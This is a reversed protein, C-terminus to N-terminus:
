KDVIILFVFICGVIVMIKMNTGSHSRLQDRVSIHNPLMSVFAQFSLSVYRYSNKAFIGDFRTEFEDISQFINAQQEAFQFDQECFFNCHIVYRHSALLQENGYQCICELILAQNSYNVDNSISTKRNHMCKEPISRACAHPFRRWINVKWFRLVAIRSTNEKTFTANNSIDGFRFISQWLYM